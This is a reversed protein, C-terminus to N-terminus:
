PKPEETPKPTLAARTLHLLAEAHNLQDALAEIQAQQQEIPLGDKVCLAYQEQLAVHDAKIWKASKWHETEIRISHRSM